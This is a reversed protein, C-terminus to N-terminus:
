WPGLARSPPCRAAADQGNQEVTTAVPPKALKGRKRLTSRLCRVVRRRQPVPLTSRAFLRGLIPVVCGGIWANGLVRGHRRTSRGEWRRPRLCSRAPQANRPGLSESPFHPTITGHTARSGKKEAASPHKIICCSEWQEELLFAAKNYGRFYRTTGKRQSAKSSHKLCRTWPSLREKEVRELGTAM